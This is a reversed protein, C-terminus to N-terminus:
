LSYFFNRAADASQFIWGTDCYLYHVRYHYEHDWRRVLLLPRGNSAHRSALVTDGNALEDNRQPLTECQAM